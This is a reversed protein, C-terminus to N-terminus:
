GAARMFRDLFAGLEQQTRCGDALYRLVLSESLSVGVGYSASAAESSVRRRQLLGHMALELMDHPERVMIM